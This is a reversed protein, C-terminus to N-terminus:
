LISILNKAKDTGGLTKMRDMVKNIYKEAIFTSVGNDMVTNKWGPDKKDFKNTQSYYARAAESRILLSETSWNVKVVGAKAADRLHGTSMGTSGHLAIGIERGTVAKTLKRHTEITAPTFSMNEGFGHKTGVGPAWLHIHGPFKEEVIGLLRRTEEATTIRDDVASEMELTVPVDAEAAIRCLLLIHDINEDETFESADLSITSARLPITKGPAGFEIGCIASKLINITEPGKIHDTHFIVPIHKFRNSNALIMLSSIYRALGMVADDAGFSRGKLQWLSTEIIVPAGVLDAAVLCDVIAAHSDANIALIAYEHQLAHQFVIRSQLPTCLM